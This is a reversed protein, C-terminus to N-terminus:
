PLRKRADWWESHPGVMVNFSLVSAAARASALTEVKAGACVAVSVLVPVAVPVVAEGEVGGV